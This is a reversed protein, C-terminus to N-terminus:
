EITKEGNRFLSAVSTVEKKVQSGIVKGAHHLSEFVTDRPCIKIIEGQAIKTHIKTHTYYYINYADQM